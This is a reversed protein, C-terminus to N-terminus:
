WGARDTKGINALWQRGVHATRKAWKRDAHEDIVVVGEERPASPSDAVM